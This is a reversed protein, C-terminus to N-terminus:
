ALVRLLKFGNGQQEVEVAAEVAKKKVFLQEHLAAPVVTKDSVRMEAKLVDKTARLTQNSPNWTLFAKDWRICEPAEMTKTPKPSASAGTATGASVTAGREPLPRVPYINKLDELPLVELMAWGFPVLKSTDTPKPTESALWITTAHDLTKPPTGHKQMIKIERHGEITVGEAGTHRGIRVLFCTKKLQDAFHQAVLPPVTHTLGIKKLSQTETKLLIEYFRHLAAFLHNEKISKKSTPCPSVQVTGEFCAGSSVTEFIQYVDGKSAQSEREDTSLRKNVAYVIKTSTEATPHLDSVKVMRFPDNEFDGGLLIKELGKSNNQKGVKEVTALASLYATRLAGKLSTGPIYPLNDNPHHATKMLTFQNIVAKRDYSSMALVKKYHTLLGSAVDTMRGPVKATYERKIFKFIGLLNEGECLKTFEARQKDSLSAIFDMPDFEILKGTKEDIVFNTPEYADDCGIHIPSLVHLKVRFPREM